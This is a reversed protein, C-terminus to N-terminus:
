WKSQPQEDREVDIQFTVMDDMTKDQSPQRGTCLITVRDRAEFGDFGKFALNDMEMKFGKLAGVSFRATQFTVYSVKVTKTGIQVDVEGNPKDAPADALVRQKGDPFAAWTVNFPEIALFDHVTLGGPAIWTKVYAGKVRKDQKWFDAGLIPTGVQEGEERSSFTKTM